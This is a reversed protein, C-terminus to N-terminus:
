PWLGLEVLATILGFLVFPILFALLIALPWPIKLKPAKRSSTCLKGAQM